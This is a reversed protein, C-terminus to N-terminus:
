TSGDAIASSLLILTTNKLSFKDVPQSQGRASVIIDNRTASSAVYMAWSSPRM